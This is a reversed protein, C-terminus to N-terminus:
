AVSKKVTEAALAMRNSLPQVVEGAVKMWTETVKSWNAVAKDFQAKAFDNQQQILENPTRATAMSKLATQAEEMAVKSTEVFQTALTEAGSTAAKASEIMAEVNGKTFETVEAMSKMQKEMMTQIKTQFQEYGVKAQAVADTTAKEMGPIIKELTVVEAMVIEKPSETEPLSVTEPVIVPAIPPSVVPSVLMPSVLVPSAKVPKIARGVPAPESKKRTRVPKEDSM